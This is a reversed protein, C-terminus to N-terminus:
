PFAACSYFNAANMFGPVELPQGSGNPAIFNNRVLAFFNEHNM